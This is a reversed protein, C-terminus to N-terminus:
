CRLLINGVDPTYVDVVSSVVVTTEGVYRMKDFQM